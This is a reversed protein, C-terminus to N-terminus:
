GEMDLVMSDGSIYTGSLQEHHVSPRELIDLLDFLTVVGGSRLYSALTRTARRKWGEAQPYDAAMALYGLIVDRLFRNGDM